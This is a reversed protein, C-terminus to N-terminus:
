IKKKKILDQHCYKFSGGEGPDVGRAQEMAKEAEQLSEFRVFGFGSKMESKKDIPIFSGLIKGARCFM